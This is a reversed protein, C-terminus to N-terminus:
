SVNNLEALRLSELYSGDRNLKEEFADYVDTHYAYIYGEQCVGRVVKRSVNMALSISSLEHKLDEFVSRSSLDFMENIWDIQDIELFIHASSKIKEVEKKYKNAERSLHANRALATAVKKNNIHAKTRIAEDREGATEILKSETIQNIEVQDAWARAAEVPDRFNPLQKFAEEKAISYSGPKRISPLVEYNVWDQFPKAEPLASHNILTFLDGENIINLGRPPVKFPLELHVTDTCELKKKNKCYRVISNSSHAYGLISTVEKGIFWAEGDIELMTLKGFLNDQFTKVDSVNIKLSKDQSQSDKATNRKYQKKM